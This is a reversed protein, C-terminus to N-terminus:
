VRATHWVARVERGEGRGVGPRAEFAPRDVAPRVGSPCSGVGAGALTAERSRPLLQIREAIVEQTRRSQGEPKGWRWPVHGEILVGQGKRLSAQVREAQRGFVVVDIRCVDDQWTDGQRIHTPGALGCRAVATGNPAYWVEPDRLLNGLFYVRHLPAM